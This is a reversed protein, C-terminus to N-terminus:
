AIPYTALNYLGYGLLVLAVVIIGIRVPPWDFRSVIGGLFLVSALIVANLIYDDSQQNAEAAADSAANAADELQAAEDILSVSYQPMVFPGLPADPNNEPDTALWADVALRLEPRMRRYYFTQLREDGAAYANIWQMALGVDIQNVQGGMISARTSETRLAGAEATKSAQVGGWRASQYGSWATAIAVVGLMIATLTETWREIRPVRIPGGAEQEPLSGAQATEETSATDPQEQQGSGNTMTEDKM